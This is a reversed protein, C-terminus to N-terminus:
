KFATYINAATGASGATGGLAGQMFSSFDSQTGARKSVAGAEDGMSQFRATDAANQYDTVEGRNKGFMDSQATYLTGKAQLDSTANGRNFENARLANNFVDMYQQYKNKYETQAADRAKNWEQAQIDATTRAIGKATAGSFLSGRNAASSMVKDTSRNIIADIEPNLNREIAAQDDWKFEGPASVDYQSFDTNALSDYYDQANEGFGELFPQYALNSSAVREGEKADIQERLLKQQKIYEAMERRTSNNSNMAGLGGSTAGLALTTGALVLPLM